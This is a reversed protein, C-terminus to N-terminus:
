LESLGSLCNYVDFRGLYISVCHDPIFLIVNWMGGGIGFPISPYVCFKVLSWSLCTCKVSHVVREWVPPKEVM